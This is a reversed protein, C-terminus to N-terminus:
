HCDFKEMGDAVVTGVKTSLMSLGIGAMFSLVTLLPLFKELRESFRRYGSMVKQILRVPMSASPNYQSMSESQNSM